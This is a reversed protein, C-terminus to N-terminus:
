LRSLKTREEMTMFSKVVDECIYKYWYSWKNLNKM